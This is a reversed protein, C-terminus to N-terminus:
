QQNTIHQHHKLSTQQQTNTHTAQILIIIKNQIEFSDFIKKNQGKSKITQLNKM